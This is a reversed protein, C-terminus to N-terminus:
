SALALTRKANMGLEDWRQTFANYAQADLGIHIKCCLFREEMNAVALGVSAFHQRAEAEWDIGQMAPYWPSWFSFWALDYLFDGYMANGWDLVASLRDHAILVNRNLLDSHIMHREVAYRHALQKLREFAQHFPGDGVPSRALLARWGHTRRSPDDIGVSLLADAWSHFPANGSANWPGYGETSALDINRMADFTQFVTPIIRHMKEADLADLMEGYVRESIAFYGGFAEGIATVKAIPLEQSAFHAVRHDKEFDEKHAGFRVVYAAGGRQFSFAQSWEGGGIRCVGHIEQQCQTSLFEKIQQATLNM